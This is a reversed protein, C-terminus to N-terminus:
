GATARPRRRRGAGRPEPSCAAWAIVALPLLAAWLWHAREWRDDGLPVLLALDHPLVAASVFLALLTGGAAPGPVTTRTFRVAGAALGLALAFLAAAEVTVAGASLAAGGAGARAVGLVAAWWAAVLPLVLSVRLGQRLPRSVPLVSTTHRAPDDFVFAAGLAGSLAALRLLNVVVAPEVDLSLLGPVAVLVLGLGGGAALATWPLCRAVPRLLARVVAGRTM